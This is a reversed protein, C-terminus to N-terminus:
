ELIPRLEESKEGIWRSIESVIEEPGIQPSWGTEGTVYSNDTVYWPIDGPRNEPVSYFSIKKGTYKECLGTLERLSISRDKGGGVNYIKGGLAPLNGIQITLLRYLDRIHLIDRVQKGQGGFGIYSLPQGYFHRAVWLVVVGQDVKGMQWSGTLVGCRNIVFPMNYMEGYEQIILESALKTAGYLSRSGELPFAESLGERTVGPIEQVKELELRTEGERFALSNLYKLPYVRSTSLFVFASKWKRAMELCNLTGVLNTQLVYHPSDSVGAMVSPEASCELILDAGGVAEIDEPHRIDGHFFEVGERQLRLLNLESGRRKLNDLAVVEAGDRKFSLALHSGVFGAGGTM